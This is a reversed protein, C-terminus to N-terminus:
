QWERNCYFFGGHATTGTNSTCRAEVGRNTGVGHADFFAAWASNGTSSTVDSILGTNTGPGTASFHGGIVSQGSISTAVGQVGRVNYNGTTADSIAHGSVGVATTGGTNHDINASFSGGTVATATTTTTSCNVAIVTAAGTGQTHNVRIFDGGVTSQAEIIRDDRIGFLTYPTGSGEQVQFSYTSGTGRGQVHLQATPLATGIGVQGNGGSIRMREAIASGTHTYFIMPANEGQRLEADTNTGNYTIGIRFGETATTHGTNSNTFQHYTSQPVLSADIIHQHVHNQATFVSYDGIGIFRRTATGGGYIRMAEFATTGNGSLLNLHNQTAQINFNTSTSPANFQGYETGNRLMRWYTTSNNPADTRFVEGTPAPLGNGAIHLVSATFTNGIGVHRTTPHEFVYSRCIESGTTTFKTLYDLASGSSCYGADTTLVVDGAASVTLIKGYPTITNSGSTLNTFRLGSPAPSLANSTIELTNGPTADHIGVFRGTATGSLDSSPYIYLDGSSTTQFDTWVGLASNSNPTFTLRLQPLGLSVNPYNNTLNKADLVEFKRAPPIATTFFDGIGANGVPSFRAVELGDFSSAPGAGGNPNTTFIFRLYDPGFPAAGATIDDGWSIVAHKLHAGEDKIGIYMNDTYYSNYTGVEMWNRSGLSPNGAFMDEGINLIAIPNTIVTPNSGNTAQRHLSVRTGNATNNFGGLGDGTTRQTVWIRDRIDSGATPGTTRIYFDGQPSEIRFHADNNNFINGYITGNRLQRWYTAAGTPCDSRFVEGSGYPTSTFFNTNIHLASGPAVTNFYGIGIGMPPNSVPDYVQGYYNGGVIYKDFVPGQAQVKSEALCITILLLIFRQTKTLTKM